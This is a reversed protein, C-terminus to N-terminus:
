MGRANRSGRSVARFPFAPRLHGAKRKHDSTWLLTPRSTVKSLVNELSFKQM